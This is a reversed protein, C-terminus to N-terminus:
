ISNGKFKGIHHSDEKFAEIVSHELNKDGINNPIGTIATNNRRHPIATCFEDSNQAKHKSNIAKHQLNAITEKM